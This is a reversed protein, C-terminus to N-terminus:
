RRLASLISTLLDRDTLFLIVCGAVQHNVDYSLHFCGSDRHVRFKRVYESESPSNNQNLTSVRPPTRDRRICTRRPFCSWYDTESAMRRCLLAPSQRLLEPFQRKQRSCHGETRVVIQINSRPIRAAASRALHLTYSDCHRQYLLVFFDRHGATGAFRPLFSAM